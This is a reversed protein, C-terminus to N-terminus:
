LVHRKIKVIILNSHHMIKVGLHQNKATKFQIM